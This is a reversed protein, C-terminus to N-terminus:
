LEIYTIKKDDGTVLCFYLRDEQRSVEINKLETGFEGQLKKLFDSKKVVRRSLMIPDDITYTFSDGDINNNVWSSAEGSNLAERFSKTTENM